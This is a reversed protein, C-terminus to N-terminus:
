DNKSFSATTDHCEESLCCDTVFCVKLVIAWSSILSHLPGQFFIKCNHRWILGCGWVITRSFSEIKHSSKLCLCNGFCHKTGSWLFHHYYLLHENNTSVLKQLLKNPNLKLVILSDVLNFFFISVLLMLMKISTSVWKNIGYWIM